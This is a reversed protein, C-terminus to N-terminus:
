GVHLLGSRASKQPPRISHLTLNQVALRKIKIIPKTLCRTLQLAFKASLILKRPYHFLIELLTPLKFALFPEMESASFM